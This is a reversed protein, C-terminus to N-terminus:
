SVNLGSNNAALNNCGGKREYNAALSFAPLLMGDPVANNTCKGSM